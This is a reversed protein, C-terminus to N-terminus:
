REEWSPLDYTGDKRSKILTQLFKRGAATHQKGSLGLTGPHKKSLEEELVIKDKTSVKKSDKDKLAEKAAEKAEVKTRALM